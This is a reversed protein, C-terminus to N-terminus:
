PNLVLSLYGRVKHRFPDDLSRGVGIVARAAPTGASPIAPVSMSWDAGVVRHWRRFREGAPATSGGWLYFNVPAITAAARYTFASSGISVGTPLAPMVIRQTLLIRDIVLSPGGGISM